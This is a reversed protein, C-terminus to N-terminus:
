FYFTVLSTSKAFSEVSTTDGHVMKMEEKRRKGGTKVQQAQCRASVPFIFYLPLSFPSGIVAYM